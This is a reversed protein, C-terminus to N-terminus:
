RGNDEITVNHQGSGSSGFSIGGGCPISRIVRGNKNEIPPQNNLDIFQVNTKMPRAGIININAGPEKQEPTVNLNQGNKMPVSKPSPINVREEDVQQQIPMPRSIPPKQVTQTKVEQVEQVNQPADIFVPTKVRGPINNLHGKKKDDPENIWKQRENPKSYMGWTRENDVDGLPASAFNIADEYSVYDFVKLESEPNCNYVHFGEADFYPKLEPFYQQSLKQYTSMNGHIAGASRQEDFSYTYNESMKFDAGMLFVKRFGMLFMIKLAALMVSRGGGHDKHNGWNITDEYLWREAMFKENRHFYIVNPCEGVVTKIDAWKENDFIRKEAFSHPVIKMIQPDFWISKIFRQPDDVCTWLNPRITRVGNNIGYTMIGPRKLLTLDYKGSSLSPGNCIFFISSGRYNGILPIDCGERNWFFPSPQYFENSVSFGYHEMRHNRLASWDDKAKELGKVRM